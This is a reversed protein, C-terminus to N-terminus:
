PEQDEQLPEGTGALTLEAIKTEGIRNLTELYYRGRWRTGDEEVLRWVRASGNVFVGVLTEFVALPQQGPLVLGAAMMDGFGKRGEVSVLLEGLEYPKGDDLIVAAALKRIVPGEYRSM